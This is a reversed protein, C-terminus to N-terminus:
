RLRGPRVVRPAPRWIEPLSSEAGVLRLAEHLRAPDEGGFAPRGGRGGLLVPARYLAVEDLWRGRLFGGLVESGGEVMVSSLGERALARLVWRLSVRGGARPGVLVRVGLDELRRRHRADRSASLVLVPASRATRALRSRVPLRLDSDLVLRYFPRSVAPEPLLLPDDALVTGIGVLVGDYLRRLARAHRRQEPSTIWKSEGRATAIRGDLTMAAKLLLYPRGTEMFTVFRKNLRRAEDELVGVDVQVGARRLQALGRGDVKPNPDRMAAVVRRVGADRVTRACAPTRAVISCPELTVYLTAGRAKAGAARLAVVEAHPGGARRHFGEGVIRGGKVVVCGVMPNPNTEGAARAALALARTMYRVDDSRSM